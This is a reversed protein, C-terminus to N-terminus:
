KAIRNILGLKQNLIRNWCFLYSAGLKSISVKECSAVPDMKCKSSKTYQFHSCLACLLSLVLTETDETNSTLIHPLHISVEECRAVPDM